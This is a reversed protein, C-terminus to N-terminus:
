AKRKNPIKAVKKAVERVRKRGSLVDGNVLTFVFPEIMADLVFRQTGQFDEPMSHLALAQVAAFLMVRDRLKADKEVQRWAGHLYNIKLQGNEADYEWFIEESLEVPVIQLGLSDDRVVTRKRGSQSIVTFPTHQPHDHRPEIRNRSEGSSPSAHKTSGHAISGIPQQGVVVKGKRDHGPGITGFKAADLVEKLHKFQPLKLMGRLVNFCRNATDAFDEDKREERLDTYIAEGHKRFWGDLAACLGVVANGPRFSKRSSHLEVATATIEGEFFGSRLAEAVERPMWEETQRCLNIFPFRYLDNTEGVSVVGRRGKETKRAISLRFTVMGADADAIQVVPLPQGTPEDSTFTRDFEKGSEDTVKVQINTNKLRMALGFTRLLDFVLSEGTVRSIVRDQTIGDIAVETSWWRYECGKPPTGGMGRILDTRQRFPIDRSQAQRRIAATNFVWEMYEHNKGKPCSTFTFEEGKGYPSIMGKGFRGLKNKKKTKSSQNIQLLAAGFKAASCGNGNDRIAARRTKLNVVITVETAEEDLANQVCEKIVDSLMPYESAIGALTNGMHFGFESTGDFKDAM